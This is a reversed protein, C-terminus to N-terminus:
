QNKKECIATLYEIIKEVRINGKEFFNSIWSINGKILFKSIRSRLTYKGIRVLFIQTKSLKICSNISISAQSRRVKKM